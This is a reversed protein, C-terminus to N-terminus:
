VEDKLSELLASRLQHRVERRDIQSSQSDWAIGILTEWTDETIVPSGGNSSAAVISKLAVLRSSTSGSGKM